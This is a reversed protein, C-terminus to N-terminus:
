LFWSMGYLVPLGQVLDNWLMLFTCWGYVSTLSEDRSKIVLGLCDSPPHHHPYKDRQNEKNTLQGQEFQVWNVDQKGAMQWTTEDRALSAGSSSPGTSFLDEKAKGPTHLPEHPLIAMACSVATTLLETRGLLNRGLERLSETLKDVAM